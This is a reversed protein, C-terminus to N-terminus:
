WLMVAGEGTASAFYLRIRLYYTRGRLLRISIQANSDTGSDDDGALFVPGGNVDEFLVIVTDSHGFTQITYRRSISPRIVFNM